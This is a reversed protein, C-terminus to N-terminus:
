CQKFVEMSTRKNRMCVNEEGMEREFEFSTSNLDPSNGRDGSKRDQSYLVDEQMSKVNTSM